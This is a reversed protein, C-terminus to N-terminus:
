RTLVRYAYGYDGTPSGDNVHVYGVFGASIALEAVWLLALLARGRRGSLAVSALWVLELPFSAMMYYRRINVTTATLLGGFGWLAANRALATGDGPAGDVLAARPSARLARLAPAIEPALIAIGAGLALAHALALGYTAHGGVLPYRAFDALQELAGHGRLLGLPNGLHLGLPDSLWFVWFKLQIAEGLGGGLPQGTPHNLVYSLWPLLPLAGLVSGAFWAKWRIKGRGFASWLTLAGALFFGSMHVQGLLAGFVGWAFAGGRRERRCWGMLLLMAFLPLFPQPWLKRQVYVCFPNVTALAFAWLWSERERGEPLFRAAFVPVLAIGAVAVLALARMLGVPTHVGFGVALAKFVWYSMGPNALYVGSPMGIWPWGEAQSANFNLAEDEKYEMDDTYLLRLVLAAALCVLAFLKWGRSLGKL